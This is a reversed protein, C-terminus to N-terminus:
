NLSVRLERKAGVTCLAVEFMKIIVKVEQLYRDHSVNAATQQMLYDDLVRHNMNLLLQMDNASKRMEEVRESKNELEGEVRRLDEKLAPIQVNTEELEKEVADLRHKLQSIKREKEDISQRKLEIEEMQETATQYLSNLEFQIVKLAINNMDDKESLLERIRSQYKSLTHKLKEIQRGARRREKEAAQWSRNREALERVRKDRDCKLETIIASLTAIVDM